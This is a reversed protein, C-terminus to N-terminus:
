LSALWGIFGLACMLGIIGGILEEHRLVAAVMSSSIETRSYIRWIKGM